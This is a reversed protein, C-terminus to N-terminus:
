FSVTVIKDNASASKYSKTFAHMKNSFAQLPSDKQPPLGLIVKKAIEHGHRAAHVHGRDHGRAVM